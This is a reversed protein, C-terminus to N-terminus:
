DDNLLADFDFEDEEDDEDDEHGAASEEKTDEWAPEVDPKTVEKKVKEELSYPAAAAGVFTGLKKLLEAYPKFRTPDHFEGLDMIANYVAEQVKVDGDGVAKATSLFKSKDYNNFGAVQVM